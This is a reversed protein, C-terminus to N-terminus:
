PRALVWTQEADLTRDFRLGAEALESRLTQDDLIVASFHHAWTRDARHYEISAFFEDGQREFSSIRVAVAGREVWGGPEWEVLDPQYRQLIVVGDDTVHRRCAALLKSRVTQDPNNILNSALLVVPFATGLVLTEIDSLVTQAEQPVHTLMEADSDVGTVPHGLELLGRTMRGTGCGLELIPAENAVALHVLRSEGVDTLHVYLEAQSGEFGEPHRVAQIM